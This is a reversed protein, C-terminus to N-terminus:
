SPRGGSLAREQLEAPPTAGLARLVRALMEDLRYGVESVTPDAFSGFQLSPQEFTFLVADGPVQTFEVRLPAYNMVRPESRYMQQAITHNGMLYSACLWEDGALSMMDSVANRWYILFGLPALEQTHEVVSEWSDGRAVREAFDAAPYPGIVREFRALADRFSGPIPVSFRTTAFHVASV